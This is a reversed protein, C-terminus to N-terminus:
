YFLVKIYFAALMVVVIVHATLEILKESNINNNKMILVM